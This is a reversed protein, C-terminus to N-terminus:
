DKRAASEPGTASEPTPAATKKLLAGCNSDEGPGLEILPLLAALPGVLAGLALAAGGKAAVTGLDPRVKPDAFPGTIHIPARVSLLSMDKPKPRLVLNLRERDLNVTGGGWINTDETDFNIVRSKMVGDKVDFDAVACRLRFEAQDKDILYGVAEAIDLGVLEIILSSIEGGGMSVGVEGDASGLMAGVSNGQGELKARGGILGESSKLAEVTPFLRDLRLRKARLSVTVAYPERTADLRIDSIVDGGAVGFDLPDLRLRGADLVLHARLDDLPLKKNQLSKAVFRVDADMTTLRDLEFPKTPLVRGDARKARAEKKQAASATEGPGTGPTANVMGALDDIDLRRSVLDAKMRPREGATNYLFDGGLDSDGVRGEFDNFQWTQGAHQLRGAIRYPPTSPLSVTTLPHLASLDDGTLLLQVDLASLAAVNLVRGNLRARTTGVRIDAEFPYPQDTSELMLVSGGAARADVKMGKLRGQATIKTARAPNASAASNTEATFRLDAPFTPDQYVVVADHVQLRQIKPATNDKKEQKERDLVWNGVGARNKELVVRGDDLAILPFVMEGRLLDLLRVQFELRKLDLMRPESGWPANDFRIDHVVVRPSLSFPHVDLDGAIVLERGTDETVYRGIPDRLVNWPFFALLLVVALFFLLIGILFNRTTRSM